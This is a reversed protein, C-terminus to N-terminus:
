DKAKKYLPILYSISYSFGAGYMSGDYTRNFGPITLNDFNDPQTQSVLRKLQFNGGLYLNSFLEVKVGVMLELWSATLGNFETSTNIVNDPFYNSSGTNIYYSDRTQSFTTFGYRAGVFIINEMGAWNEYANYDAGIKIYSGKSTSKLDREKFTQQENGIESALYYNKYVRYDGQVEFGSYDDKLISKLPKSLDIGLRLGYREKYQISDTEVAPTQAWLNPINALLFLSTTFLFILLQKM